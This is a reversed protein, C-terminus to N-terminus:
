LSISIILSMCPRFRMSQALFYHLISVVGLRLFVIVGWSANIRRSVSQACDSCHEELRALIEALDKERDTM